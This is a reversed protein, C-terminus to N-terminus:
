ALGCWIGNKQTKPIVWGPISGLDGPGNAFVRVMIGIDPILGKNNLALDERERARKIYIYIYIYIYVTQLPITSQYNKFLKNTLMRNFPKMVWDFPSYFVGVAERCLPLVVELLHGPYSVLCDSPSIGTTSSIQPICLVGNNGDSGPRSQGPTTAGSLTRDIPWISSFQTSKNFQITKFLVTKLNLSCVLEM